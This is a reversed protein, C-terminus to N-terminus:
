QCEGKHKAMKPYPLASKGAATLLEKPNEKLAYGFCNPDTPSVFPPKLAYQWTFCLVPHGEQIWGEAWIDALLAAGIALREVIFDRSYEAIPKGKPAKALAGNADVRTLPDRRCAASTLIGKELVSRIRTNGIQKKLKLGTAADQKAKLSIVEPLTKCEPMELAEDLPALALRADPSAVKEINHYSDTLEALVLAVVRQDATAKPYMAEAMKRFYAVSHANAAPATLLTKAREFVAQELGFQVADVLENEFYWHIGAQGIEMGDHDYTAHYPQASDGVFHSMLAAYTLVARTPHISDGGPGLTECDVNPYQRLAWRYLDDFQQARWPNTGVKSFFKIDPYLKAFYEKAQQYGLPFVQSSLGGLSLQPVVRNLNIYHTPAGLLNGEERLGDDLNRWYVDPINSIQGQQYWRFEFRKVFESTAAAIKPDPNKSLNAVAPQYRLLQAATRGVLHHGLEGRALVRHSHIRKRIKIIAPFIEIPRREHGLSWLHSVL